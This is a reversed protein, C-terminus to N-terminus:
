QARWVYEIEMQSEVAEGDKTAPKGRCTMFFRIATSDLDEHGSSSVLDVAKVAGNTDILVRVRTTGEAGRRRAEVPYDVRACTQYHIVPRSVSSPEGSGRTETASASLLPCLLALM